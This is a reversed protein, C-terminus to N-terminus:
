SPRHSSKAHRRCADSCYRVENWNKAWKKRWAFPRNCIPCMKSPLHEKRIGNM